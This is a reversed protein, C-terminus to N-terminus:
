LSLTCLLTPPLYAEILDGLSQRDARAAVIGDVVAEQAAVIGLQFRCAAFFIQALV